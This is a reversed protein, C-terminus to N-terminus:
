GLTRWSYLVSDKAEQRCCQINSLDTPPNAVNGHNSHVVRRCMSAQNGKLSTCVERTMIEIKGETESADAFTDEKRLRDRHLYDLQKVTAHPRLTPASHPFLRGLCHVGFM